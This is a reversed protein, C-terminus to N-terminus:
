SVLGGRLHVGEVEPAYVFAEFAPLPQPLEPVQAPDLKISVYPKPRGNEDLQFYNSRLMALIVGFFARLARDVDLSRIDDFRDEIAQILALRQQEDADGDPDFRLMFLAVMDAMIRPHGALMTELYGASFPL